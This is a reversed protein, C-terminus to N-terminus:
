DDCNVRPVKNLLDLEYNQGKWLNTKWSINLKKDYDVKSDALGKVKFQAIMRAFEKSSIKECITLDQNCVEKYEVPFSPDNISQTLRPLRLSAGMRPLGSRINGSGLGPLEGIGAGGFGNLTGMGGMSGISGISGRGLSFRSKVSNKLQQYGLYPDSFSFEFAYNMGQELEV